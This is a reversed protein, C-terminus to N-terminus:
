RGLGITEILREDDAIIAASFGVFALIAAIDWWRLRRANDTVSWALLSVVMAAIVSLGGFLAIRMGPPRGMALAAAGILFGLLILGRTVFRANRSMYDLMGNPV